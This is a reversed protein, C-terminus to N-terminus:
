GGIAQFVAERIKSYFVKLSTNNEIDADVMPQLEMYNKTSLSESSYNVLTDKLREYRVSDSAHICLVVANSLNSKLWGVVSPVIQGEFVVKAGKSVKRMLLDGFGADGYLNLVFDYMDFITKKDLDYNAKQCLDRVVSDVNVVVFGFVKLYNAAMTKGSGPLGTLIAGSPKTDELLILKSLM